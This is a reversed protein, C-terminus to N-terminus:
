RVMVADSPPNHLEFEYDSCCRSARVKSGISDVDPRKQFLYPSCPHVVAQAFFDCCFGKPGSRGIQEKSPDPDCGWYVAADTIAFNDTCECRPPTQDLDEETCGYIDASDGEPREDWFIFRLGQESLRTSDKLSLVVRTADVQTVRSDSPLTYTPPRANPGFRAAWAVRFPVQLNFWTRCYSEFYGATLNNEIDWPLMAAAGDSIDEIYTDYISPRQNYTDRNCCLQCDARPYGLM